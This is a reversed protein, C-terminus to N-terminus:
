WVTLLVMISCYSYWFVDLMDVTFTWIVPHMISLLFPTAPLFFETLVGYIILHRPCGSVCLHLFDTFHRERCRLKLVDVYLIVPSSSYRNGYLIWISCARWPASL